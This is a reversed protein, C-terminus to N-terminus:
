MKKKETSVYAKVKLRVNHINPNQSTGQIQLNEVTIFRGGSELNDVFYGLQHFGSKATITVPMEKFFENNKGGASSEMLDHPVIELIKVGSKKAMGSIDELFRPIEKQDPLKQAYEDVKKRLLKLKTQMNDMDDLQNNVVRIRNKVDNAGRSINITKVINPMIGILVYLVLIVAGIGIIIYKKKEEDAWYEKLSDPLLTNIDIM